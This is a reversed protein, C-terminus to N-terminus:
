SPECDEVERWMVVHARNVVWELKDGILPTPVGAPWCPIFGGRRMRPEFEELSLQCKWRLGDSTGFEIM